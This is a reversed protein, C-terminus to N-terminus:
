FIKEHWTMFILNPEVMFSVIKDYYTHLGGTYNSTERTGDLEMSRHKELRSPGM